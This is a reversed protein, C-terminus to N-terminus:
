RGQISDIFEASDLIQFHNYHTTIIRAEPFVQCLGYSEWGMRQSVPIFSLYGNTAIYATIPADVSGMWEALAERMAVITLPEDPPLLSLIFEYIGTNLSKFTAYWGRVHPPGDLGNATDEWDQAAKHRVPSDDARYLELMSDLLRRIMAPGPSRMSVTEEDPEILPSVFLLPSHDLFCLEGVTDGSEEILHAMMLAITSSACFAGIRYPGKPQAERVQELYFAAWAKISHTPTDPTTQLAWLSTSFKEQISIFPLISGSAGHILILPTDGLDVLKVLAQGEKHLMDDWKYFTGVPAAQAPAVSQKSAEALREIDSLSLNNLLQMQSIVLFPRLAFALRGAGLSDMGYSTFPVDPSFDTPIRDLSQLVVTRLTDRTNEPSLSPQPSPSIKMVEKSRARMKSGVGDLRKRWPGCQKQLTRSHGPRYPIYEKMFPYSPLNLSPSNAAQSNLKHFDVSDHGLVILQGLASLLMTEEQCQELERTRRMPCVVSTIPAGLEQLYLSLVPHPSVEVFSSTPFTTIIGIIAQAFQVPSRCNLWFYEETFCDLVAGMTASYTAIAPKHAGPYRAFVDAVLSRYKDECVDVLSSHIAADTQLRRAFLGRANAVEVANEVLHVHGAVAVACPSNFGAIELVGWDGVSKRVDKIVDRAQEPTCALAAMTGDEVEVLTLARGQAIALEIAMSKSGAGSAYLLPTEGVSHGVLVDPRLGLSCLLDFLAIQLMTLTPYITSIPWTSPLAEAAGVDAFLGTQDILSIGTIERHCQDLELITDRFVKFRQFLQRGMNIHQPGQGSFVFVIPPSIQPSLSPSPFRISSPQPGAQAVAFTRWTMQRARRGYVTSTSALEHPHSDALAALSDAVARASRPSLGGAVFLVPGTVNTAEESAHKPAVSQLVVHGNSGGISYSSMSILLKGSASRATVPTPETPVRLKYQDWPINPHRAVLNVNPPVLGTELISCVKCLSALFAAVHLHGINGKVSGVLLNEDRGFQEGVWTSEVLDDPTGMAHMEVYDVDQPDCATGQYARRMANVQANASLTDDLAAAGSAAVGTGLINGYVYDGDRVADDYPKLVIAVAGEGKVFGDASADFPKCKRDEALFDEPFHVFDALRLNLQCGAVVAAECEGARLAQVAFHLALMSSSCTADLPIAPGRLDLHASIANAIMCSVAPLPRVAGSSSDLLDPDLPSDQATGAAFCAVNRGRYAIGADLLSLFALEILKRTSLAMARADEASVSFEAHDFFAIDKLFTGRTNLVGDALSDITFRDKPIDEYAEEKNLLFERLSKYDLNSQSLSGGPLDASIGVIAIARKELSYSQSGTSM